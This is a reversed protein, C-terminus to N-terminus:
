HQLLLTIVAVVLVRASWRRKLIMETFGTFPSIDQRSLYITDQLASSLDPNEKMITSTSLFGVNAGILITELRYRAFFFM